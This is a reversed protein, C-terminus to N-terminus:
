LGDEFQEARLNGLNGLLQRLFSVSKVSDSTVRRNLTIVRGDELGFREINAITGSQDFSIALLQRDTEKPRRPGRSEWTSALYYWADDRIVGTAGPPGILDEVAERSDVGVVLEALEAESPVYGHKTIIPTCAALVSIAAAAAVVQLRKTAKRM